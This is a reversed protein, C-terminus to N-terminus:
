SVTRIPTILYMVSLSDAVPQIMMPSSKGTFKLGIRESGMSRLIDIFLRGNLSIIFGEGKLEIAPVEEQVEGLEATRSILELKTRVAAIRIVSENALVTVREVAKLLGSAEVIVESSCSKPTVHHVSPYAGKLLVSWIRLNGATFVIQSRDWEIETKSEEKDLMKAIENLNFGPIIVHAREENLGGVGLTRSALRIGDSAVFRISEDRYEICVGTLVPRTESTSVSSAVQKIASKLLANALGIKISRHREIIQAAPFEAPDMGCLRIRSRGSVISLNLQGNTELTMIGSDLRRILEVFYRGPVVISGTRSITMVESNPSIKCCITMSANSATLILETPSAEMKIGSLIPIPCNASVARSVHQLAELLSEKTVHVLM